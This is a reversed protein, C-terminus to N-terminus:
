TACTRAVATGINATRKVSYMSADGVGYTSGSGCQMAGSIMTMHTAGVHLGPPPSMQVGEHAILSQGVGGPLAVATHLAPTQSSRHVRTASQGGRAVHTELCFM